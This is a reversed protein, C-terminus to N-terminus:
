IDDQEKAQPVSVVEKIELINADIKPLVEKQMYALMQTYIRSDESTIGNFIARKYVFNLFEVFKDRDQQTFKNKFM